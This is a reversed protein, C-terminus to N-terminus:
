IKEEAKLIENLFLKEILYDTKTQIGEMCERPIFGGAMFPHGGGTGYGKLANSVVMAADVNIKASRVSFKIGDSRIAYVVSFDVVDLSLIFDSIVAILADPCDFPIAAFGTEGYVHINDIAAGYAKLDSFEMVNTYMRSIYEPNCQEFVFSFMEADLSTAGRVFDATDMKIGYALCSAVEPSMETKTTYFYEAILTACAGVMRVDKYAYECAFVTPHHDICAVEDGIFDTLNANYKQSDVTVIYDEERMDSIEDKSLIDIGFVEFMKRTSLKEIRGDYCIDAPIGHQKLFYQLGFASAIADPDPFNHTQIYTKHGKLIEVLQIPDM